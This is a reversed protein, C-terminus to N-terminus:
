ERGPSGSGAKYYVRNPIRLDIYELTQKEEESITEKLLRQLVSLQQEASRTVDLLVRWNNNLTFHVERAALSPIRIEAVQSGTCEPLSEQVKKLFAVFSVDVAAAGLTVQSKQDNNKVTPLVIGPLTELRAEEYPVGDGDVFYYKSNSLLLLEPTKEQVIAKITGPLKRTVYVTRVQPLAAVIEAEIAQIPVFFINRNLPLDDITQEIIERAAKTTYDKADVVTIAQVTFVETFLFLWVFLALPVAVMAALLAVSLWPLVRRWLIRWSRKKQLRFM